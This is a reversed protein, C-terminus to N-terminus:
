QLYCPDVGHGFQSLTVGFIEILFQHRGILLLLQDAPRRGLGCDTIPDFLGFLQGSHDLILGLRVTHLSGAALMLGLNLLSVKSRSFLLPGSKGAPGSGSPPLLLMCWAELGYVISVDFVKGRM